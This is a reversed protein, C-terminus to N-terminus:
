AHFHPNSIIYKKMIHTQVCRSADYIQMDILLSYCDQLSMPVVSRGLSEETNEKM